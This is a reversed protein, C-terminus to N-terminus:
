TLSCGGAKFEEGGALFPRRYKPRGKCPNSDFAQFVLYEIQTVRSSKGLTKKFFTASRAQTEVTVREYIRFDPLTGASVM